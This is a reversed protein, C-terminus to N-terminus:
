PNRSTAEERLDGKACEPCLERESDYAVGHIPCRTVRVESGKVPVEPDPETVPCGRCVRGDGPPPTVSGTPM